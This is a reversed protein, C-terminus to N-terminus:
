GYYLQPKDNGEVYCFIKGNNTWVNKFGHLGQAEKLKEM